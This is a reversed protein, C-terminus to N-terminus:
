DSNSLDECGDVVRSGTAVLKAGMKPTLGGGSFVVKKNEMGFGDTPDESANGLSGEVMSLPVFVPPKVNGEKTGGELEAGVCNGKPMVTLDLSGDEDAGPGSGGFDAAELVGAEVDLRGEVGPKVNAVGEATSLVAGLNTGPDEPWSVSPRDALEDGRGVEVVGLKPELLTGFKKAVLLGVFVNPRESGAGLGVDTNPLKTDPLLPVTKPLAVAVDEEVDALM